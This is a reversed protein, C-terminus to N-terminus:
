NRRKEGVIKVARSFIVRNLKGGRCKPLGHCLMETEKGCFQCSNSDRRLVERRYALPIYSSEYGTHAMVQSQSINMVAGGSNLPTIIAFVLFVLGLSFSSLVKAKANKPSMIDRIPCYVITNCFSHLNPFTLLNPNCLINRGSIGGILFGLAQAYILMEKQFIGGIKRDNKGSM